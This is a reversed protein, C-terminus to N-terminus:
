LSGILSVIFLMSTAYRSLFHALSSSYRRSAFSGLLIEEEEM